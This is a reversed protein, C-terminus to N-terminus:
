GCENRVSETKEWIVVEQEDTYSMNNYRSISCVVSLSVVDIPTKLYKWYLKRYTCLQM